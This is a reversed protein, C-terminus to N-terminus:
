FIFGKPKSIMSCRLGIMFKTPPLTGSGAATTIPLQNEETRLYYTSKSLETFAVLLYRHVSLSESTTVPDTSSAYQCDDVVVESNFSKLAANM